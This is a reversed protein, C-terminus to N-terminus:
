QTIHHTTMLGYLKGPFLSEIEQLPLLGFIFAIAIPDTRWYTHGEYFGYRMIYQPEMEGTNMSSLLTELTDRQSVTLHTYHKDLLAKEAPKIDRWLQIHFAGQIGDDFISLQGGKTDMAKVFVKHGHYYFYRIHDWQHRAMNWRKLSLDQDMMNLVHFLPEALQPHTLSLKKVIRNDAILVSRIDEDKAMFGSHSLGNPRGLGTIEELTRGTITEIEALEKEAHLGSMALTPFDTTDTVLQKCIDRDNGLTVDIVAFLSDRNVAVVYTKGEKSFFPSVIDPKKQNLEPYHKFADRRTPEQCQLMPISLALLIVFHTILSKM